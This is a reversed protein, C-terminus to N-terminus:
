IKMKNIQAIEEVIFPKLTTKKKSIKYNKAKEM